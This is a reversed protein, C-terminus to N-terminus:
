KSVDGNEKFRLIRGWYSFRNGNEDKTPVGQDNLSKCICELEETAQNRENELRTIYQSLISDPNCNHCEQYEKKTKLDYIGGHWDGCYEHKGCFCLRDWFWHFNGQRCKQFLCPAFRLLLRRWLPSYGSSM